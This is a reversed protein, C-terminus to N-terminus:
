ASRSMASLEDHPDDLGFLLDTTSAARVRAQGELGLKELMELSGEFDSSEVLIRVRSGDVKCLDSPPLAAQLLETGATADLEVITSADTVATPFAHTLQPNLRMELLHAFRRAPRDWSFHAAWTRCAEAQGSAVGPDGLTTLAGDIATSLDTNDDVLWGNLGEVISDVLGPVRFGICPRGVANSEIVTAGWGEGRTPNVTLWAQSLLHLRAADSVRGHFRVTGSCDLQRVLRELHPRAPGSGIIDARLDPWKSCLRAAAAILLDVRKHIVLRGLFAIRPNPSRDGEHDTSTETCCGNPIVFIQGKLNLRSRVAARTSPSVAVVPVDRYIVRSAQKELVKGIWSLPAPLYLGFQDQHVHHIVAIVATGSWALFLPAFFPIGNQCDIVADFHRRGRLLFIAARAYLSIPGGARVIEVGERREHELDGRQRATFYTVTAGRRVFRTAIEWAYREAGGALLHDPARWNLFLIRLPTHRRM